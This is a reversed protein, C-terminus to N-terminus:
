SDARDVVVDEAEGLVSSRVALRGDLDAVVEVRVPIQRGNRVIVIRSTGNVATGVASSPLITARGPEDVTRVSVRTRGSLARPPRGKFYVTRVSKRSTVVKRVTTSWVTGGADVVRVRQGRAVRSETPVDVVSFRRQRSQTSAFSSKAPRGVKWDVSEIKVPLLQVWAIGHLPISVRWASKDVVGGSGALARRRVALFEAKTLTPGCRCPLSLQFRMADHLQAVDPGSMGPRLDRYAPLRGRLAIVPSGEVLALEDGPLVSDDDQKLVGTVVGAEPAGSVAIDPSPSAKLVGPFREELRIRSKTARVTVVSRSLAQRLQADRDPKQQTAVVIIAAGAISIALAILAALAIGPRSRM